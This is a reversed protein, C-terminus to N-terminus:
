GDTRRFQFYCPTCQDGPNTVPTRECTYCLSQALSPSVSAAKMVREDNRLDDDLSQLRRCVKQEIAEVFNSRQSEELDWWFVADSSDLIGDTVCSSVWYDYVMRALGEAEKMDSPVRSM